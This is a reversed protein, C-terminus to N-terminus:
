FMQIWRSSDDDDDDDSHLAARTCHLFLCQDFSLMLLLMWHLYRNETRNFQLQSATLIAAASFCFFPTEKKNLTRFEM